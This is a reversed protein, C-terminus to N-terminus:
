ASRTRDNTVADAVEVEPLLPFSLRFCAGPLPGDVLDLAGGMKGVIIRSINLGLGLGRGAGTTPELGDQHGRVFKEFIRTRREPAIGPGNDAIDIRYRGDAISSGVRIVPEAASNYKVANSIINILM